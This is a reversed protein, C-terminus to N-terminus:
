REGNREIEAIQARVAPAMSMPSVGTRVLLNMDGWPLQKFPLYLQAMTEEVIPLRVLKIGCDFLMFLTFLGTLTWGTWYAAPSITDDRM